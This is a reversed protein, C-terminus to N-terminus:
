RDLVIQDQSRSLRATDPRNRNQNSNMRTRYGPGQASDQATQDRGRHWIRNRDRDRIRNRDRVDPGQRRIQLGIYLM